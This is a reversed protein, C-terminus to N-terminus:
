GVFQLVGANDKVTISKAQTLLTRLNASSNYNAQTNNTANVYEVSRAAIGKLDDHANKYKTTVSLLAILLIIAIGIFLVNSIKM